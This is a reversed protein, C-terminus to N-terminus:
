AAGEVPAFVFPENDFEALREVRLGLEEVARPVHGFHYGEEAAIGRLLGMRLRGNQDVLRSVLDRLGQPVPSRRREEEERAEKMRRDRLEHSRRVAAYSAEPTGNKQRQLFVRYSEGNERHKKAQREAQEIEGDAERQDDLRTLWEGVLRIVDGECEIIGAEELPKLIRRRVDWPRKRRLAECLDKLHMEGGAAELTDLVAGRHPGLRKGYPRYDLPAFINEGIAETVTRGTAGEVSRVLHGLTAPSSWRLRPASPYRLGKCRRSAEGLGSGEAPAEEKSYFAASPVLLRYSCAKSRDEPPLIELQGDAELHKLAQGVSPASKAAWEAIRRLGTRSIVIGREDVKGAKPALRILAEKVDRATHGRQWNSGEASGVFRMWDREYWDRWLYAVGARLREDRSMREAVVDVPQYPAAMLRLEAVTGGAALFDDVGAKGDGNVAPLYIVLVVSGLDELMRVARRLAEQVDPNTRADADFVIIMRRGRLRVHRWCPLPVTGKTKPEAMNWVGIFGVAPEGQSALSDVKKAGETVWLDGEGHRVQDLMLPNVDLTIRSGAPTEYKPASGNKRRIPHNPRLQYGVTEGDPSFMPVVLGPKRQYGKFADPVESRSRATYYGRETAVERSIGSEKFLMRRHSDSLMGPAGNPYSTM